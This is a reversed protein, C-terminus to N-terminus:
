KRGVFRQVATDVFYAAIILLMIQTLDAGLADTTGLALVKDWVVLKWLYIVFPLAFLPRIMRTIWHGQEALLIAQRAQLLALREESAIARETNAEAALKVKTEGIQKTIATLPDILGWLFALVNM